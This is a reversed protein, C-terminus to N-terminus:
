SFRVGKDFPVPQDTEVATSNCILSCQNMSDILNGWGIMCSDWGALIPSVLFYNAVLFGLTFDIILLRVVWWFTLEPM